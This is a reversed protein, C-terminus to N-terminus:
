SEPRPKPARAGARTRSTRTSWDSASWDSPPVFVGACFETVMREVDAFAVWTAIYAAWALAETTELPSLLNRRAERTAITLAHRRVRAAEFDIVNTARSAHKV